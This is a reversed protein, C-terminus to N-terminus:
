LIKIVVLDRMCLAKRFSYFESSLSKTNLDFVILYPPLKKVQRSFFNFEFRRLAGFRVRSRGRLLTCLFYIELVKEWVFDLWYSYGICEM